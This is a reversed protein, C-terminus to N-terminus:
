CHDVWRPFCFRLRLTLLKGKSAGRHWYFYRVKNPNKCLKHICKEFAFYKKDHERLMYSEWNELSRYKIFNETVEEFTYLVVGDRVQNERYFDEKTFLKNGWTPDYVYKDNECWCHEMIERERIGDCSVYCRGHAIKYSRDFLCYFFAMIYCIGLGECYIIRRAITKKKLLYSEDDLYYIRYLHNKIIKDIRSREIEM